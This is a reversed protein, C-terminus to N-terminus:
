QLPYPANLSAAELTKKLVWNRYIHVRGNVLESLGQLSLGHDVAFKKVSPGLICEEATKTNVLKTLFRRRYKRAKPKPSTSCFGGIRVRLGCHLSKALSYSMSYRESFEKITRTKILEGNSNIFKYSM